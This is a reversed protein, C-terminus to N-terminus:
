RVNCNDVINEDELLAAVEPFGSDTLWQAAHNITYFIAHRLGEPVYLTTYRSKALGVSAPDLLVTAQATCGLVVRQRVNMRLIAEAEPALVPQVHSVMLLGFPVPLVDIYAKLQQVYDVTREINWPGWADVRLVHSCRRITYEGHAAFSTM